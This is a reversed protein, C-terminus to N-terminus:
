KSLSIAKEMALTGSVQGMARDGDMLACANDQELVRIHPRANIGGKEIRRLYYPIRILGHSPMGRQEAYLISSFVIQSDRSSLGSAEFLGRIFREIRDIKISIVKEKVM